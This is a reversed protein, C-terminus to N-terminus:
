TSCFPLPPPSQATSGSRHDISLVYRVLSVEGNLKIPVGVFNSYKKVVAEVRSQPYSWFLLLRSSVLSMM